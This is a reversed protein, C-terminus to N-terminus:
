QFATSPFPLNFFRGNKEFFVSSLSYSKHQLTTLFFSPLVFFHDVNPADQFELFVIAHRELMAFFDGIFGAPLHCSFADFGRACAFCDVRDFVKAAVAAYPKGAADVIYVLALADIRLVFGHFDTSGAILNRDEPPTVHPQCVALGWAKMYSYAVLHINIRRAPSSRPPGLQRYFRRVVSIDVMLASINM